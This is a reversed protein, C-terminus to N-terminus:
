GIVIACSEGREQLPVVQGIRIADGHAIRQAFELLVAATVGLGEGDQALRVCQHLPATAPARCANVPNTSAASAAVVCSGGGRSGCSPCSAIKM